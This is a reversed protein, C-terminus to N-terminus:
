KYSSQKRFLKNSYIMNDNSNDKNDSSNITKSNM